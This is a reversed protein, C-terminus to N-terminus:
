PLRKLILIDINGFITFPIGSRKFESIKEVWFQQELRSPVNGYQDESIIIVSDDKGLTITEVKM